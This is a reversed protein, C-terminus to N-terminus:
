YDKRSVTGEIAGYSIPMWRFVHWVLKDSVMSGVHEPPLFSADQTLEFPGGTPMAMCHMIMLANPKHKIWIFPTRPGGIIEGRQFGVALVDGIPYAMTVGPELPYKHIVFADIPIQQDTM